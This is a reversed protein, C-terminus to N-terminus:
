LRKAPEANITLPAVFDRAYHQCNNELRDYRAHNDYSLWKEIIRGVLDAPLRSLYLQELVTWRQNFHQPGLDEAYLEDRPWYYWFLRRNTATNPVLNILILGHRDNHHFWGITM